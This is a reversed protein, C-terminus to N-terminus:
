NMKCNSPQISIKNAGLAPGTALFDSALDNLIKNHDSNEVIIFVMRVILENIKVTRDIKFARM